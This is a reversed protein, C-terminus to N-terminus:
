LNRDQNPLVKLGVLHHGQFRERDSSFIYEIETKLEIPHSPVARYFKMDLVIGEKLVKMIDSTRKVLIFMPRSTTNWIKFQYTYKLEDVYFEVYRLHELKFYQLESSKLVNIDM